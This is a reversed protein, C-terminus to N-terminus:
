EKRGSFGARSIFKNSKVFQNPTLGFQKKFCKRFYSVDNFGLKYYLDIDSIEKEKLIHAAKKLRYNLIFDNPTLGTLSKIKNYLMYKSIGLQDIFEPIGFQLNELNEELVTYAKELFHEDLSPINIQEDTGNQGILFKRRLKRRLEILNKIVSNLYQMSFPKTIYADAGAEMGKIQDELEEKATLIIVPIHSTDLDQKVSRCLEFGNIVPIKVDTIILEPQYSKAKILGEDGDGAEIITYKETLQERLLKKLEANDEILLIKNSNNPEKEDQIYEVENEIDIYQQIKPEYNTKNIIKENALLYSEGFPIRVEFTVGTANDSILSIEGKHIEVYSKVLSLGFGSGFSSVNDKYFREFLYEVKDQPISSGANNLRISIIKGFKGNITDNKKVLNISVKGSEPEFKFANSLLKYLIYEIKEKDFWTTISEFPFERIFSIKKRKAISEFNTCIGKIFSVLEDQEACLPMNGTEIKRLNIIRKVLHKLRLVNKNIITLYHKKLTDTETNFLTELPINLLTLSTGIEHSVDTFLRVRAQNIETQKDKETKQLLIQYKLNLRMKVLHRILILFGAFFLAYAIYALNTRWPPPDIHIKLTTGELKSYGDSNEARVTLQYDGPKLNVFNLSRNNGLENWKDEDDLKYYFNLKDGLYYEPATFTIWISNQFYKLSIKDSFLITHKVPVNKGDAKLKEKNVYLGTFIVDPLFPNENYYDPKFTLLGNISGAYINGNPAIDISNPNFEKGKIGKELYVHKFERNGKVYRGVGSYTTVWITKNNDEIIGSINNDPLGNDSTFQQAENNTPNYRIIGYGGTGVWIYGESDEFLTNIRKIRNSYRLTNFSVPFIQLSGTNVQLLGNNVSGIFVRGARDEIIIKSFDNNFVFGKKNLPFMYTGQETAFWINKKSDTLVDFIGLNEPLNIEPYVTQLEVLKKSSPDCLIVGGKYSSIWVFGNPDQWIDTIIPNNMGSRFLTEQTFENMLNHMSDLVSLGQRTGVWINNDSDIFLSRINSNIISNSNYPEHYIFKFGKNYHSFFDVGGMYSGLWLIGLKPDTYISYITNSSLSEKIDPNHNLINIENTVTNVQVIGTGDTGVIITNDSGKGFSSVLLGKFDNCFAPKDFSDDKENYHMLEGNRTCIWVVGKEDTEIFFSNKVTEPNATVDYTKYKRESPNYKVVMGTGTLWINAQKDMALDYLGTFPFTNEVAEFIKKQDNFLYLGSASCAWINNEKDKIMNWFFENGPIVSFKDNYRDYYNLCSDTQIILNDKKDGIITYILNCSISHPDDANHMFQTFQYGDYMNLGRRTGFWMLDKQDKYIAFVTSQSLGDEVWLHNFFFEQNNALLKHNTNFLCGIIFLFLIIVRSTRKQQSTKM